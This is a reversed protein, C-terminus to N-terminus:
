SRGYVPVLAARTVANKPSALFAVTAAVEALKPWAAYDSDPWARRNAATDMTSPVVANVWIGEAAVEEALALTLAAVAAKSMAYAIKGAGRRPEVGPQSAVNVIRGGRGRMVKVAERSCLFASVANMDLMKKLDGLATEDIRSMAFGGACHISAWIPPLGAYYAAVAAEDGLDSVPAFRVRDGAGAYLARAKDPSRVPLHVTAGADLLHRAVAEGLEGTAGTVVVDLGSFETSM